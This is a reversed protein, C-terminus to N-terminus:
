RSVIVAEDFVMSLIAHWRTYTHILIPSIAAQVSTTRGAFETWFQFPVNWDLAILYYECQEGGEAKVSLLSIGIRAGSGSLNPTEQMCVIAREANTKAM